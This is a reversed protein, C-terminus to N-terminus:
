PDAAALDAPARDHPPALDIAPAIQVELRVGAFADADVPRDAIGVDRGPVVIDLHKHTDTPLSLSQRLEGVPFEELRHRQITRFLQDFIGNGATPRALAHHRDSPAGHERLGVVAASGTMVAAGTMASTNRPGVEGTQIGRKRGRLRSTSQGQPRVADNVADQVVLAGASRRAHAHDIPLGFM